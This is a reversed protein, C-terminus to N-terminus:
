SQRKGATLWTQQEICIRYNNPDVIEIIQRKRIGDIVEAPGFDIAVDLSRLAQVEAELDDVLIRVDECCDGCPSIAVEFDAEQLWLAFGDRELVAFTPPDGFLQPHDFGLKKWYFDVARMLPYVVLVPSIGLVKSRQVSNAM